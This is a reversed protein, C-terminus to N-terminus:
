ASKIHKFEEFRYIVWGLHEEVEIIFEFDYGAEMEGEKNRHMVVIVGDPSLTVYLGDTIHVVGATDATPEAFSEVVFGKLRLREAIGQATVPPLKAVTGYTVFCEAHVTPFKEIMKQKKMYELIERVDRWDKIKMQEGVATSIEQWHKPSDTIITKLIALCKHQDAAKMHCWIRHNLYNNYRKGTKKDIDFVMASALITM